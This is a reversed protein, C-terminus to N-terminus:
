GFPLPSPSGSPTHVPLLPTGTQAQTDVTALLWETQCLGLQLMRVLGRTSGHLFPADAESAEADGRGLVYGAKPLKQVVFLVSDRLSTQTTFKVIHVGDSATQTDLLHANRPLPLDKPVAAPWVVNETPPAPCASTTPPPTTPGGAAVPSSSSGGCGGLVFAAAVAAVFPGYRRLM